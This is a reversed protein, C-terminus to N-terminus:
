PINRGRVPLRERQDRVERHADETAEPDMAEVMQSIPEPDVESLGGISDAQMADEERKPRPRMARAVVYGIGGVALLKFLSKM